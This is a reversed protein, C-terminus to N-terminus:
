KINKYINLEKEIAAIRAQYEKETIVYIHCKNLPWIAPIMKNEIAKKHAEQESSARVIGKLISKTNTTYFLSGSDGEVEKTTNVVYIQLPAIKNFENIKTIM